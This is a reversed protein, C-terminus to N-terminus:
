RLLTAPPASTINNYADDSMLPSIWLRLRGTLSRLFGVVRTAARSQGQSYPPQPSFCNSIAVFKLNEGGRFDHPYCTQHVVSSARYAVVGEIGASGM